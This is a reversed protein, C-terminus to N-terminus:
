GTKDQINLIIITSNWRHLRIQNQGIPKIQSVDAEKAVLRQHKIVKVICHSNVKVVLLLHNVPWLDSVWHAFDAAQIQSIVFHGYTGWMASMQYKKKKNIFIFKKLKSTWKYTRSAGMKNESMKDEDCPLNLVQLIVIM